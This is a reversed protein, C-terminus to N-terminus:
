RGPPTMSGVAELFSRVQEPNDLAYAAATPRPEDRVVIGVGRDRLVEFADEDTIDDGVYLPLIEPKDLDLAELLWLLARGKHWDVRPQLEHVKKGAARRLEPRREAVRAVADEVAKLSGEEVLRYHVAISFQKREVLVGSIDHLLERLEREAEDLVGLSEAGPQLDPHWGEPGEIQFGHSGAYFINDIGVLRRVDQLDRGSIVAVTSRRALERVTNRTEESLIALDPRDVIPTLTGDYDLFVALRKHRARATIEELRDLASPLDTTSAIM